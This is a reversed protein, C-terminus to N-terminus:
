LLDRSQSSWVAMMRSSEQGPQGGTGLSANELKDTEVDEWFDGYDKCRWRCLEDGPCSFNNHYKSFEQM